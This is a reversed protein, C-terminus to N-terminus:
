FVKQKELIRKIVGLLVITSFWAGVLAWSRKKAQKDDM